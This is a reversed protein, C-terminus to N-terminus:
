ARGFRVRKARTVPNFHDIGHRMTMDGMRNCDHGAITRKSSGERLQHQNGNTRHREKWAYTSGTKVRAINYNPHKMGVACDIELQRAYLMTENDLVAKHFGCDEMDLWSINHFCASAKVFEVWTAFDFADGRVEHMYNNGALLRVYTDVDSEDPERGIGNRVQEVIDERSINMEIALNEILHPPHDPRPADRIAHSLLNPTAKSRGDGSISEMYKQYAPYRMTMHPLDERKIRLEDNGAYHKPLWDDNLEALRDSVDSTYLMEGALKSWYIQMMDISFSLKKTVGPQINVLASVTAGRATTGSPGPANQLFTEQSNKVGPLTQLALAAETIMMAHEFARGSNIELADDIIRVPPSLKCNTSVAPLLAPLRGRSVLRDLPAHIPHKTTHFAHTDKRLDEDENGAPSDIHAAAPYPQSVNSADFCRHDRLSLSLPPVDGTTQSEDDFMRKPIMDSPMTPMEPCMQSNETTSLQMITDAVGEEHMGLTMCTTDGTFLVRAAKSYLVREDSSGSDVVIWAQDLVKSEGSVSPKSHFRLHRHTGTTVDTTLFDMGDSSNPEGTFKANNCWKVLAQPKYYLAAHVFTPYLANTFEQADLKDDPARDANQEEVVKKIAATPAMDPKHEAMRRFRSREERARTLSKALAEIEATPRGNQGDMVGENQHTSKNAEQLLKAAPDTPTMQLCNTMSIGVKQCMATMVNVGHMSTGITYELGQCWAHYIVERSPILTRLVEWLHGAEFVPPTKDGPKPRAVEYQAASQKFLYVRAVAEMITMTILNEMRKAQRRPQPRPMGFENMLMADWQRWLVKAFATDPHLWEVGKIAMRVFSVISTFLRFMAIRTAVSPEKLHADFEKDDSGDRNCTQDRAFLCTTRQIFAQKSQSPVGGVTLNCGLNCM